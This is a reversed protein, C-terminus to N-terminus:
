ATASRRRSRRSFSSWNSTLNPRSRKASGVASSAFSSMPRTSRWSAEYPTRFAKGCTPWIMMPFIRINRPTTRSCAERYGSAFSEPTASPLFSSKRSPAAATSVESNNVPGPRPPGNPPRGPGGDAGKGVGPSHPGRARTTYRDMWRALGLRSKANLRIEDRAITGKEIQKEVAAVRAAPKLQELESQVTLPQADFWDCYRNMIALLKERDPDSEIASHLERMRQREDPSRERFKEETDFM